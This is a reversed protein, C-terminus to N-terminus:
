KKSDEKEKMKIRMTIKKIVIVILLIGVSAGLILHIPEYESQFTGTFFLAVIDFM